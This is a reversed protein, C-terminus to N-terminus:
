KCYLGLKIILKCHWSGNEIFNNIIKRRKDNLIKTQSRLEVRGAVVTKMLRIVEGGLEGQDGGKLKKKEM